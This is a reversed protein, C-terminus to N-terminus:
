PEGGWRAGLAIGAELPWSGRPSEGEGLNTRLGPVLASGSASVSAFVPSRRPYEVAAALSFLAGPSIDTTGIRPPVAVATAWSIAAGALVAGSLEFDGAAWRLRPGVRLWATRLTATMQPSTVEAGTTPVLADVVLDAAASVGLSARLTASPAAPYGPANGLVAVGLSLENALPTAPSLDAASPSAERRQPLESEAMAPSVKSRLGNLAEATVVALQRPDSGPASASAQQLFPLSGLYCISAVTDDGGSPAPGLRIWARSDGTVLPETGKAECPSAGSTASLDVVYGESELESGLRRALEVREESDYQVSVHVEAAARSTTGVTAALTAVWAVRPLYRGAM